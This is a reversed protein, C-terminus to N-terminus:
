NKTATCHAAGCKACGSACVYTTDVQGSDLHVSYPRNCTATFSLSCSAKDFSVSVGDQVFTGGSDAVGSPVTVDVSAAPIIGCAGCASTSAPCSISWTGAADCAPKVSSADVCAACGLYSQRCSSAASEADAFCRQGTGYCSFPTEKPCCLGGAPGADANPRLGCQLQGAPCDYLTSPTVAKCAATSAGSKLACQDATTDCALYKSSDNTPNFLAGDNSECEDTCCPLTAGACRAGEPLCLFRNAVTKPNSGCRSDEHPSSESSCAAVIMLVAGLVLSSRLTHM